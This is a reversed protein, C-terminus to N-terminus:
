PPSSLLRYRPKGRGKVHVIAIAREVEPAVERVVAELRPGDADRAVCGELYVVRRQVTVWLTSRPAPHRKEFAAKVAQAIDRDYAYSNPRECKGALWCTTGREARGHSQVRREDETMRPGAPEPCAAIESSVQFFPDGFWNRRDPPAAPASAQASALVGQSLLWLLVGLRLLFPPHFVPVIFLLPRPVRSTSAQMTGAVITGM